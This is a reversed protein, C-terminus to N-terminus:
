HGRRRTVRRVVFIIAILAVVVGAMQLITHGSALAWLWKVLYYIIVSVWWLNFLTGISGWFNGAKGAAKAPQANTELAAQSAMMAAMANVGLYDAITKVTQPNGGAGVLNHQMIAILGSRAQECFKVAGVMFDVGEKLLGILLNVGQYENDSGVPAKQTLNWAAIGRVKDLHEKLTASEGGLEFRSAHPLYDVIRRMMGVCRTNGLPDDVYRSASGAFANLLVTERAKAADHDKALEPRSRAFRILRDLAAEQTASGPPAAELEKLLPLLEDALRERQLRDIVERVTIASNGNKGAEHDPPLLALLRSAQLKVSRAADDNIANRSFDTVADYFDNRAARTLTSVQGDRVVVLRVAKACQEIMGVDGSGHTLNRTEATMAALLARQREESPPASSYMTFADMLTPASKIGILLAEQAASRARAVASPNIAEVDPVALAALAATFADRQQRKGYEAARQGLAAVEDALFSDWAARCSSQARPDTQLQYTYSETVDARAFFIAYLKTASRWASAANAPDTTEANQAIRLAQAAWAQVRWPELRSVTDLMPETGVANETTFAMFEDAFFKWEIPAAGSGSLERNVKGYHFSVKSDTLTRGFRLTTLEDHLRVAVNVLENSLTGSVQKPIEPHMRIHIRLDRPQLSPSALLTEFRNM